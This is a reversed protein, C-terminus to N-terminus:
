PCFMVTSIRLKEIFYRKRLALDPEVFVAGLPSNCTVCFLMRAWRLAQPSPKAPLTSAKCTPFASHLEWFEYSFALRPPVHKYDKQNSPDAALRVLKLDVLSGTELSLYSQLHEVHMCACLCPTCMPFAMDSCLCVGTLVPVGQPITAGNQTLPCCSTPFPTCSAKPYGSARPHSLTVVSTAAM